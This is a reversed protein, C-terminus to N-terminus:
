HVDPSALLSTLQSIYDRLKNHLDNKGQLLSRLETDLQNIRAKKAESETHVHRLREVSIGQEAPDPSGVVLAEHAKRELNLRDLEQGLNHKENDIDRQIQTIEAQLANLASELQSIAGRLYGDIAM